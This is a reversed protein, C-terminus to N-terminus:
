ESRLAAVPDLRSARLAPVLCALWAAGALAASAAAVSAPDYPELEFLFRELVRVAPLVAISGLGLGLATLALGRGIVQRLVHGRDAGLAMRVGLERTRQAVWYAMVGYLGVVSLLLAAVGFAGLLITRFRPTALTTWLDQEMTRLTHIPVNPDVAALASRVSTVVGLPDLQTRVLITSAQPFEGTAYPVYTTPVPEQGISFQEVDAVVGVVERWQPNEWSLRLRRGVADGEPFYRRAVTENIVVAETRDDEGLVRGDLLTMGLAAFYEPGVFVSQTTVKEEPAPVYGEPEMHQHSNFRFPHSSTVAASAVGPQAELLPILEDFFGQQAEFEAYRDGPLEFDVVLLNEAIFGAEQDLLKAFSKLLLAAGVLLVLTLALQAVIMGHRLRNHRAGGGAGRTGEGLSSVLNPRSARWAPTLAVTLGVVVVMALIFVFATADLGLEESRPLSSAALLVLAKVLGAALGLGALGGLATLLLSEAVFQRVIRLRGAGMASRLAIERERGVVRALLLNVVNLCAIVLVAGVSALFILLQPRVDGVMQQHLSNMVVSTTITKGPAGTPVDFRPAALRAEAEEISLEPKVRGLLYLYHSTEGRPAIRMPLWFEAREDPFRFGEPMVGVVTYPEEEVLVSDGVVAPDGAFRDQWLQHSLMVVPASGPLDDEAEFSRGLAPASGLAPLYGSTVLAGRLSEAGGAFGFTMTLGGFAELSEFSTQAERYIEYTPYSCGHYVRGSKMNKGKVVQLREPDEYPLPRLLVDNVVSFIATVSGLGLALTAAAALTWGPSKSLTRLAYRLDQLLNDMTNREAPLHQTMLAAGARAPRHVAGVLESRGHVVARFWQRTAGLAVDLTLDVWFRTAGCLGRYRAESRQLEFLQAMERGYARRFVRPYLALLLRVLSRRM